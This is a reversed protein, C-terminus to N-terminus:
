PAPLFGHRSDPQQRARALVRDVVASWELVQLAFREHLRSQVRQRKRVRRALVVHHGPNAAAAQRTLGASQPERDRARQHALVLRELAHETAFPQERAVRAHLLALLVPARTRALPELEALPLLCVFRVCRIRRRPAGRPHFRRNWDPRLCWGWRLLATASIPMFSRSSAPTWKPCWVRRQFGCIFFNMKMSRFPM